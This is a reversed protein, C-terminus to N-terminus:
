WVRRERYTISFAIWAQPPQTQSALSVGSCSVMGPPHSDLKHPGNDDNTNVTSLSVEFAPQILNRLAAVQDPLIEDVDQYNHDKHGGMMCKRCLMENCELCFYELPKLHTKCRPQTNRISPRISRGRKIVERSTQKEEESVIDVLRKLNYNTKLGEVRGDPLATVHRCSPCVLDGENLVLSAQMAYNTQMTVIGDLCEQCFSHACLLLKPENLFDLCIACILEERVKRNFAQYRPGPVAM